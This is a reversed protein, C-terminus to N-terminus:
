EPPVFGCDDELVKFLDEADPPRGAIIIRGVVVQPVSRSGAYNSVIEYLAIHRGIRDQFDIDAMARDLAAEGILEVARSRALDATPSEQEAMWKDFTVFAERDHHWVAMAIHAMDCAGEHRPETEVVNSNCKADLPMPLLLLVVDDGYRDLVQLLNQHQLLCHPCTYDFIYVIVHKADPSGIAPYDHTKLGRVVGGLISITRDPGPGTDLEGSTTTVQQTTMTKSEYALQGGVLAAVGVLAFLVKGLPRNVGGRRLIAALLSLALVVGVGHAAMCWNCFQQEYLQLGVFWV